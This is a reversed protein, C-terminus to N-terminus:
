ILIEARSFTVAKGAVEVRSGAMKVDLVGTRKSVQLSRFASKGTKEAWFPTLACHASGTVPDEIIGLEPVFCRVVFDYGPTTAPATIILDGFGAAMLGQIDPSANRVEDEDKLLAMKWNYDCNYLELPNFGAAKVLSQPINAESYNYRPFNMVIRGDEKRIELPGAKSEFKISNGAMGIEFLIHSASLTAHGCLAIEAEPTYFRIIYKDGDPAVFATESLNMENAIKQMMEVGPLTDSIMVGAPNGRFISETFADVHYIIKSM